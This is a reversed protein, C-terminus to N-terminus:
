TSRAHQAAQLHRRGAPQLRVLRRHAPRVAGGPIDWDLPAASAFQPFEDPPLFSSTTLLLATHDQNQASRRRQPRRHVRRVRGGRRGAPVARRRRRHRRRRRQRLRGALVAPLRQAGAPVPVAGADHVGAAPVPQLLVRREGGPRVAAYKGALLLKGGENLYDRVALEIDLAAKATTGGVQGPARLIIDDGTEWVVADYHSLVGLPAAGPPGDRRLRLRRQHLRRRRALDRVRRRVARTTLGQVPSIGTRGRRRPHARRRRHRRARHLHLARTSVTTRAGRNRGTFWVEVEDGPRTGRVTGRFEGYYVDNKDGYREGGRWEKVSGAHTGAATSRTTAAPHEDCRGSPPSPSRSAAATRSTSRTPWSTPHTSASRRCRTTRTTRRSPSAVARVPHEERVRGPDAGRRRPLHLREVCDEAIWEDDPVSDSATQAPRCRRPSASRATRAGAHARRHRRQDHLARRLHRPRLGPGGPERRRRGDGRLHRRRAVAHSRGASATSCCSPPRTTTSRLVRLRRARVPRRAGPDRARLGPATGRYTESAPDPSSGENDYGWKTPSTATSTSATAPPSIATATTTACTRAGCGTARPSRSTTATPTPSRCSGCSPPTRRARHDRPDTGYGDLVYHLLRRTM